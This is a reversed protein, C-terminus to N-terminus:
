ETDCKCGPVQCGVNNHFFPIHGCEKCREPATGNNHPDLAQGLFELEEVTLHFLADSAREHPTMNACDECPGDQEVLRLQVPCHEDGYKCTHRLCCHSAHTGCPNGIGTEDCEEITTAGFRSQIAEANHRSKYLKATYGGTGVQATPMFKGNTCFIFHRNGRVVYRTSM